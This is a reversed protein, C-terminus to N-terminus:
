QRNDCYNTYHKESRPTDTKTMHEPSNNTQHTFPLILMTEHFYPTM